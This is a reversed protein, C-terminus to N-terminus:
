ELRRAGCLRFISDCLCADKFIQETVFIHDNFFIIQDFFFALIKIKLHSIKGFYNRKTKYGQINAKIMGYVIEKQHRFM